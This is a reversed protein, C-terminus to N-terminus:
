LSINWVRRAAYDSAMCLFFLDSNVRTIRPFFFLEPSFFLSFCVCVLATGGGGFSEEGDGLKKWPASCAGSNGLLASTLQFPSLKAAASSTSRLKLFPKLLFTTRHSIDYFGDTHTGAASRLTKRTEKEEEASLGRM